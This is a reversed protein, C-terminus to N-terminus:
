PCSSWGLSYTLLSLCTVAGWHTASREAHVVEDLTMDIAM